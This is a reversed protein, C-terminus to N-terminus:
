VSGISFTKTTNQDTELKDLIVLTQRLRNALIKLIPMLAQPNNRALSNFAQQTLISVRCPALAKVTASRPFGDILGLEGFIDNQELTGVVQSEGGPLSKLVEARGSELIYACDSLDGERILIEGKQFEKEIKGNQVSM